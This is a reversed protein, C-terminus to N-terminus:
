ALFNGVLNGQDSETLPTQIPPPLFDDALLHERLIVAGRKRVQFTLASKIFTTISLTAWSTEHALSSACLSQHPQRHRIDEILAQAQAGLSGFTSIVFTVVRMRAGPPPRRSGALVPITWFLRPPRCDGPSPAPSSCIQLDYQCLLCSSPWGVIKIDVISTYSRPADWDPLVLDPTKLLFAGERQRFSTM